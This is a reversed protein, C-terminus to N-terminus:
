LTFNCNLVVLTAMGLIRHIFHVIFQNEFFNRWGLTSDFHAKTPFWVDGMMPFSNTIKGARNGAMFCGYVMTILYLHFSFMLKRRISSNSILHEWNTSLSSSKSGLNLGLKLLLGYILIANSFHFALRYPSVKVEGKENKETKLGSKVM